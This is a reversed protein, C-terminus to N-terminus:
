GEQSPIAAIAARRSELLAEIDAIAEQAREILEQNMKVRELAETEDLNPTALSSIISEHARFVTAHLDSMTVILTWLTISEPATQSIRRNELTDDFPM